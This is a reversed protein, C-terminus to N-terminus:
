TETDKLCAKASRVNAGECGKAKLLLWLVADLWLDRSLHFAMNRNPATCKVDVLLVRAFKRKLILRVPLWDAYSVASRRYEM